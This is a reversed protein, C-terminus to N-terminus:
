QNRAMEVPTVFEKRIYGSVGSEPARVELWDGYHNVLTVKTGITFRTVSTSSFNPESRLATAYKIQYLSQSARAPPRLTTQDASATKTVPPIARPTEVTKTPQIARNRPAVATTVPKDEVQALSKEWEVLTTIDMGERIFLLPFNITVNDTIIEPFSWNSIEALIAKKFEGDPIRSSIEKVQTVSGSNAVNMQLIMNGMLGPNKGTEQRYLERLKQLQGDIRTIVKSPEVATEKVGRINFGLEQAVIVVDGLAMNWTRAPKKRPAEAVGKASAEQKPSQVGVGLGYLILALGFLCSGLAIVIKFGLRAGRDDASVSM